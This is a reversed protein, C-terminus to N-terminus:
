RLGSNYLCCTAFGNLVFKCSSCNHYGLPFLSKGGKIRPESGTYKYMQTLTITKSEFHATQINQKLSSAQLSSGPLKETHVM